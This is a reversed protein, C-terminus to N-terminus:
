DMEQVHRQEQSFLFDFYNKVPVTVNKITMYTIDVLNFNFHHMHLDSLLIKGSYFISAKVSFKGIKLSSRQCM